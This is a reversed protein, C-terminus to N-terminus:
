RASRWRPACSALLGVTTNIAFRATTIGADEFTLQLLDNALVVPANLNAFFNQVSRKVLNPALFGYVAAVPRFILTDVADNFDFIARNIPELPDIIEEPLGPGPAPAFRPPPRGLPEPVPPALAGTFPASALAPGVQGQLSPFSAAVGAIISRRSEPAEAVAADVVAAALHRNTAIISVVASILATDARRQAKRAM